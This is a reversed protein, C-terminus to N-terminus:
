YQLTVLCIDYQIEGGILGGTYIKGGCIFGDGSM